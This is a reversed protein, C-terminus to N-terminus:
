RLMLDLKLLDGNSLKVLEAFRTASGMEEIQEGSFWDLFQATGYDNEEFALDQMKDILDTTAAETEQYLRAISECDPFETVRKEIAPIQVAVNATLLYDTFKNAHEKEGDAQEKFYAAVGKLWRNSAWSVIMRYQLENGLEHSIQQNILGAMTDSIVM